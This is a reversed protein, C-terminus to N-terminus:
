FLSDFDVRPFFELKGGRTANKINYGNELSAKAATEYVFELQWTSNPRLKISAAAEKESAYFHNRGADNYTISGDRNPDGITTGFNPIQTFACISLVLM